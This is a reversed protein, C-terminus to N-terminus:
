LENVRVIALRDSKEPHKGQEMCTALSSPTRLLTVANSARRCPREAPSTTIQTFPDCITVPAIVVRPVREMCYAPRVPSM